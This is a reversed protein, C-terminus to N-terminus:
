NNPPIVNNLEFYSNQEQKSSEMINGSFVIGDMRNQFQQNNENLSHGLSLTPQQQTLTQFQNSHHLPYSSNSTRM